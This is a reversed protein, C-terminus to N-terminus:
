SQSSSGKGVKSYNLIQRVNGHDSSPLYQVFGPSACLKKAEARFLTSGNLCRGATLVCACECATTSIASSPSLRPSSGTYGLVRRLLSCDASDESKQRDIFWTHVASPEERRDTRLNQACRVDHRSDVPRTSLQVPNRPPNRRLPLLRQPLDCSDQYSGQGRPGRTFYGSLQRM